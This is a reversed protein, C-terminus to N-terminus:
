SRLKVEKLSEPLSGVEALWDDDVEKINWGHFSTGKLKRFLDAASLVHNEMVLKDAIYLGEWDCGRILTVKM